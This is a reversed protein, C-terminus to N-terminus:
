LLCRLEDIDVRVAFPTAKFDKLSNKGTCCSVKNVHTCFAEYQFKPCSPWDNFIDTLSLPPSLLLYSLNPNSMAVQSLTSLSISKPIPHLFNLSKLSTCSTLIQNVPSVNSVNSVNAGGFNNRTHSFELHQLHSLHPLLLTLQSPSIGHIHLTNLHPNQYILDVLVQESRGDPLEWWPLCLEQLDKFPFSWNEVFTSNPYLGLQLAHINKLFSSELNRTSLCDPNIWDWKLSNVSVPLWSMEEFTMKLPIGYIKVERLIPLNATHSLINMAVDILEASKKPNGFARLYLTELNVMRSIISMDGRDYNIESKNGLNYIYAFTSIFPVLGYDSLKDLCVFDSLALVLKVQHKYDKLSLGLEGFFFYVFEVEVHLVQLNPMYKPSALQLQSTLRGKPMTSTPFLYVSTNVDAIFHQVHRLIDVSINKNHWPFQAVRSQPSSCTSDTVLAFWFGPRRAACPIQVKFHKWMEHGVVARFRKNVSSLNLADQALYVAKNEITFYFHALGTPLILHNYIKSILESPLEGLSM